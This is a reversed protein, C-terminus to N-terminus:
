GQDQFHMLPGLGHASRKKREEAKRKKSWRLDLLALVGLTLLIGGLGGGILEGLCIIECM